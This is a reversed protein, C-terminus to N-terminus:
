ACSMYWFSELRSSVSRCVCACMYMCVLYVSALISGDARMSKKSKSGAGCACGGDGDGGVDGLGDDKDDDDDCTRGSSEGGGTGCDCPACARNGDADDIIFMADKEDDDDMM